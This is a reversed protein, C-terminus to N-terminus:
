SNLDFVGRAGALPEMAIKFLATELFRSMISPQTENSDKFGM